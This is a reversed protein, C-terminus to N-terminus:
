APRSPSNTLRATPNNITLFHPMRTLPTNSKTAHKSLKIRHTEPLLDRGVDRQYTLECGRVCCDLLEGPGPILSTMHEVFCPVCYQLGTSSERDGATLGHHATFFDPYMKEQPTAVRLLFSAGGTVGFIALTWCTFLALAKRGSSKM